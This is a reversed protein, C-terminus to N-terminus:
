NRGIVLPQSEPDRRYFARPRQVEQLRRLKTKVLAREGNVKAAQLQPVLAAAYDFWERLLLRGDRPREDANMKKLGDEILAFTLYGHGLTANEQAAQYSQAATLINMGKEYALQALGKANMPGRRKEEAELAQGSNCADLVLLLHGADLPEFLATLEEDSVAKPLVRRVDAETLAERKGDYGLEYPLLYFHQEFAIGHGAFYVIVADEPQAPQLRQLVAPATASLPTTGAGALRQLAVLLNEKTAAQDLLLVPEVHAFQELTTQKQQWENSFALADAVAYKLNFNANSYQNLGLAILYATGRRTLNTAGQLELQADASKINARNFAYASFQNTGAVLTVETELTVSSRGQLVDGRWVKVLAGNRFLRVDQAGSDSTAQVVLKLQGRRQQQLAAQGSLTLNNNGAASLSLSPQRRDLQAINERPPPRRQNLVDALLEPYFFDNFFVEVPSTNFSNQAFRWLIQGWAKPSGDFLGDPTVVLWDQSEQLAVLTAAASATATRWLRTSGDDSGSILWEGDNSFCLSNITGTHGTLTARLQGSSLEWLEITPGNGRAFTQGAPAIALAYHRESVLATTSAAARLTKVEKGTGAEWVKLAGDNGATVLSPPVPGNNASQGNGPQFAALLPPPGAHSLTRLLQGTRTDWLRATQDSSASLLMFGDPSLSLSHVEGSHGRLESLQRGTAAQWSKILNDSSGSFLQQGDQSFVLTQIGDSHASWRQLTRATIPEWLRIVGAASGSALWQGDPSFALAAISGDTNNPSTAVLRGSFTEWLSVTADQNGTALWRGDPSFAVARIPNVRSALKQPPTNDILLRLGASRTGDGVALRQGDPSFAAAEYRNLNDAESLTRLTQGTRLDFLSVTHNNACILLQTEAATLKLAIVPAAQAPFTQGAQGNQWNWARTNGDQGGSFLQANNSSFTLCRIRTEHAKVRLRERGTASDWVQLSGDASGAALTQGDPSYALVTVWSRAVNLTALERRSAIEWIKVVGDEAGGAALALGDPRLALALLAKSSSAWTASLQGSAVDWRRLQGDNGGSFLQAGDLSFVLAKIGTNAGTFTRLEHGTATEWLRITRDSSGTALYRGDPSFAFAEVKEAHGTQLVLEPRANPTQAAQTSRLFYLLAPCLASLMLWLVFSTVGFRQERISM